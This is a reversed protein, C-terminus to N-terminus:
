DLSALLRLLIGIAREDYDLKAALESITAPSDGLSAFIGADDAAVIAGQYTGTLWLDWIHRDDTTPADYRAMTRTNYRNEFSFREAVISLTRARSSLVFEYARVDPVFNHGNKMLTSARKPCRLGPM